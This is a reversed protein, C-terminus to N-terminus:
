AAAFYPIAWLVTLAAGTSICGNAALTRVPARVAARLVLALPPAGAVSNTLFTKATTPADKAYMLVFTTFLYFPMQEPFRAGASLLIERPHAPDGRAGAPSATKSRWRRPSCRRSSSGLRIVLGLAVLLLSPPVPGGAGPTSRTARCRRPLLTVAGTALVLGVPM